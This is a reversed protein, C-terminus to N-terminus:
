IDMTLPIYRPTMSDYEVIKEQVIGYQAALSKISTTVPDDGELAQILQIYLESTLPTLNKYLQEYTKNNLNPDFAPSTKGQIRAILFCQFHELQKDIARQRRAAFFGRPNPNHQQLNKLYEVMENFANEEPNFAAAIAFKARNQSKSTLIFQKFSLYQRSTIHTNHLASLLNAYRNSLWGKQFSSDSITAQVKNFAYDSDLKQEFHVQLIWLLNKFSRLREQYDAESGIKEQSRKVLYSFLNFLGIHPALTKKLFDAPLQHPNNAIADVLTPKSESLEFLTAPDLITFANKIQEKSGNKLIFHLGTFGQANKQSLLEAKEKPSRCLDMLKEYFYPNKNQCAWMFPTMEKVNFTKMENLFVNLNEEKKLDAYHIFANFSKEDPSHTLLIHFLNEKYKTKQYLIAPTVKEDLDKNKKNQIIELCQEVLAASPTRMIAVHLPTYGDYNSILLGKRLAESDFTKLYNFVGKMKESDTSIYTMCLHLFTNGRSFTRTISKQSTYDMNQLFYYPPEYCDSTSRITLDPLVGEESQLLWKVIAENNCCVAPDLFFRTPLASKLNQFDVLTEKRSSLTSLELYISFEVHKCSRDLDFRIHNGYKKFIERVVDYEQHSVLRKLSLTLNYYYDCGEASPAREIGLNIWEDLLEHQGFYAVWNILPEKKQLEVGNIFIRAGKIRTDQTNLLKKLHAPPLNDQIRKIMGIHNDRLCIYILDYLEYAASKGSNADTVHLDVAEGHEKLLAGIKEIERSQAFRLLSLNLDKEKAHRPIM